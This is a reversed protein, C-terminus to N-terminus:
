KLDSIPFFLKKWLLGFKESCHKVSLFFLKLLGFCEGWDQFIRFNLLCFSYFLELLLIENKLLTNKFWYDWHMWKNFKNRCPPFHLDMELVKNKYSFLDPASSNCSIIAKLLFSRWCFHYNQVIHNLTLSIRSKHLFIDM